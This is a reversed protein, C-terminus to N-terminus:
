ATITCESASFGAPDAGATSRHNGTTVRRQRRLSTGDKARWDFTVLGRVTYVQGAPPPTLTFSHGAQKTSRLRARGVAIFGSDASDLARWSGDDRQLQLQFRMYLTAGNLGPMSGRIGVTDPNAATDCVNVTAWPAHARAVSTGTVETAASVAAPLAALCALACLFTRRLPMPVFIAGSTIFRPNTRLVPM